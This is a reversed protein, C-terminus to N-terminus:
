SGKRWRMVSGTSKVHYVVVDIVVVFLDGSVDRQCFPIRM